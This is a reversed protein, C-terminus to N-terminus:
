LSMEVYYFGHLAKLILIYDDLLVMPDGPMILEETQLTLMDDCFPSSEDTHPPIIDTLRVSKRPVHHSMKDQLRLLQTNIPAKCTNNLSEEVLFKM